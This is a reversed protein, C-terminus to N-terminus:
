NGWEKKVIIKFIGNPNEKKFKKLYITAEEKYDAQFILGMNLKNKDKISGYIYYVSEIKKMKLEGKEKKILM